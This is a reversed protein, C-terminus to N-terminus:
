AESSSSYGRPAGAGGDGDAGRVEVVNQGPFFHHTRQPFPITIGAADLAEKVAIAVGSRVRWMTLVDPEHWFWVSLDISSDGFTHVWASPGPQEHVGEVARVAELIVSQAARLDTDYAVGVELATRRMGNATHNVIPDALVTSCPVLVREGDYTRLVVTRFNVDVVTGDMDGVQVQDGRRIPRRTQIVISAIFDGLVGQAAIALALGGIGLAGLVPAIQVELFVLAYVLGAVVVLYGVLRATVTAVAEGAGARTLGQRLLRYVVRGAALGAAFIALALAWDAWTLGERLVVADEDGAQAVLAATLVRM